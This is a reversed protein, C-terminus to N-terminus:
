SRLWPKLHGLVERIAARGEDDLPTGRGSAPPTRSLDNPFVGRAQLIFKLSRIGYAEVMPVLLSARACMAASQQRKGSQFLDWAQAYLDVFGAAPM